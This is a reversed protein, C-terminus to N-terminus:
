NDGGTKKEKKGEEEEEPFVLAVLEEAAAFPSLTGERVRQLIEGERARVASHKRFKSKLLAEVSQALWFLVQKERKKTLEGTDEMQRHHDQVMEWIEAIGTKELASCLVVKLHWTEEHSRLLKLASQLQTRAKKAHVVNDGDAKNIAIADAMELIGRKIGQLEDGAGSLMLLLFFDVMSAVQTESQGVGVTEVLIVEYGAAECVLMAERTSRAVGGLWGGGPSPRVLANPHGSLREMRTKDGLISGGTVESSPDVALVAVQHGQDAVMTGFAEIFTSKGSGPVGSVGLRIAKGTHPLLKHLVEGAMRHHMPNISEMLSLTRGIVVRDGRLVGEVYEDATLLRRRPRPKVERDRDISVGPMVHLASRLEEQPKENPM